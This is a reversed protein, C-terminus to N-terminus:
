ISINFTTNNPSFWFHQLDTHYALYLLIHWFVCIQSYQVSKSRNQRKQGFNAFFVRVLYINEEHVGRIRENLSYFVLIPCSQFISMYHLYTKEIQWFSVDLFAGIPGLNKKDNKWVLICLLIQYCVQNLLFTGFLDWGPGTM